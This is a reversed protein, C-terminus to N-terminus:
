KGEGGLLDKYEAFLEKAIPEGNSFKTWAEVYSLMKKAAERLRNVEKELEQVRLDNAKRKQSICWGVLEEPTMAYFGNPGVTGFEEGLRCATNKWIVIEGDRKELGKWCGANQWDKRRIFVRGVVCDSNRCGVFDQDVIPNPILCFPCPKLELKVEKTETKVMPEQNCGFDDISHENTKGCYMCKTPENPLTM